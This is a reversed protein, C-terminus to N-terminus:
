PAARLVGSTANATGRAVEQDELLRAILWKIEIEREAELAQMFARTEPPLPQGPLGTWELYTKSGRSLNVESSVPMLNRRYNHIMRQHDLSLRHYGDFQRFREVTVIHDVHMPNAASGILSRLVPDEAVQQVQTRAWEVTDAWMEDNFERRDWFLDYARMDPTSVGGSAGTARPLQSMPLERPVERSIADIDVEGYGAEPQASPLVPASAEATLDDRIARQATAREAETLQYRAIRDGDRNMPRMARRGPAAAAAKARSSMTRPTLMPTRTLKEAVRAAEEPTSEVPPAAFPLPEHTPNSLGGGPEVEQGAPAMQRDDVVEPRGAVGDRGATAGEKTAARMAKVQRVAGVFAAASVIAAALGLALELNTPGGDPGVLKQERAILLSADGEMAADQAHHLDIALQAGSLALDVGAFLAGAVGAVTGAGITLAAFVLFAGSIVARTRTMGLVRGLAVAMEEAHDVTHWGLRRVATLVIPAFLWADDVDDGATLRKQLAALGQTARALISELHDSGRVPSRSYAGVLAAVDPLLSFMALLRSTAQAHRGVDAVGPGGRDESASREREAAIGRVVALRELPAQEARLTSSTAGDGAGPVGGPLSVTGGDSAGGAGVVTNEVGSSPELSDADTVREPVGGSVPPLPLGELIRRCARHLAEDVGGGRHLQRVEQVTRFHTDLLLRTAVAINPRLGEIVVKLDAAYARERAAGTREFAAKRALGHGEDSVDAYVRGLVDSTPFDIHFGGVPRHRRPEFAAPVANPSFDRGAAVLGRHVRVVRGLSALAAGDSRNPLSPQRGAGGAAGAAGRSLGRDRDSTSREDLWDM